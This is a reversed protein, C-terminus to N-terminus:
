RSMHAYSQHVQLLRARENQLREQFLGLYYKSGATAAGASVYQARDSQEIRTMQLRASELSAVLRYCAGYMLVDRFNDDLGTSDLTDTNNVLTGPRATYTIKIPQGPFMPDAIDISRGTPFSTTDADTHLMYRRVPEWLHSPGVTQFAVSLVNDCDAPLPYTTTVPVVTNTVDSKVVFVEPYVESLAQQIRQKITQRPFRPNDTAMTNATHTAPTTGRYGRGFPAITVTNSSRNADSVWLIEDDIELLGRSVQSADNVSLVLDTLGVDETLYTVQELNSSLGHLETNVDNILDNLTTAM